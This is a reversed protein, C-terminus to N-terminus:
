VRYSRRGAADLVQDCYVCSTLEVHFRSGKQRVTATRPRHGNDKCEVRRLRLRFGRWARALRGTSPAGRPTPAM